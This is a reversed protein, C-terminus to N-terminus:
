NISSPHIAMCSIKARHGEYFKQKFNMTSCKSIIAIRSVFYVIYRECNQHKQDYPIPTYKSFLMEKLYNEPLILDKVEVAPGTLTPDTFKTKEKISYYHLFFLTKRRSYCEFGYVHNLSVSIEPVRKWVTAKEDYTKKQRHNLKNVDKFTSGRFMTFSDRHNLTKEGQSLCFNLERLIMSSDEVPVPDPKQRLPTSSKVEEEMMSTNISVIDYEIKWEIMCNDYKGLSYVTDKPYTHSVYIKSIESSHGYAMVGCNNQLDELGKWVELADGKMSVIFELGQGIVIPYINSHHYYGLSAISMNFKEKEELEELRSPNSMSLKYHKRLDSTLIIMNGKDCFNISVTKEKDDSGVYRNQVVLSGDEIKMIYISSSKTSSIIYGNDPSFKLDTVEKDVRIFSPSSTWNKRLAVKSEGSEENFIGYIFLPNVDELLIADMATIKEPSSVQFIDILEHTDTSLGYISSYGINRYTNLINNNISPALGSTETSFGGVFVLRETNKQLVCLSVWENQEIMVITKTRREKYNLISISNNISEKSQLRGGGEQMEGEPDREVEVPQKVKQAEDEQLTFKIKIFDGGNTNFYLSTSSTAVLNKITYSMLKFSFTRTDIKRLSRKLDFSVVEIMGNISAVVIGQRIICMDVITCEEQVDSRCCVVQSRPTLKDWLVVRGDVHGTVVVLNIEDEEERYSESQPNVDKLESISPKKGGDKLYGFCVGSTINKLEQIKKINQQRVVTHLENHKLYLIQNCTLLVFNKNWPEDSRDIIERGPITQIPLICRVNENVFYSFVVTRLSVDYVVIPTNSRLSCSVLLSDEKIFELFYIDSKHDGQFIHITKLTHIDWLHISPNDGREGSAILSGKSVILSSIQNQHELYHKQENLREYLIVVMKGCIYLLKESTGKKNKRM